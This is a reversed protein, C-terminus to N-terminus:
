ATRGSKWLRYTGREWVEWEELPLERPETGDGGKAERETKKKKKKKRWQCNSMRSITKNKSIIGETHEEAKKRREVWEKGRGAWRSVATDWVVGMSHGGGGEGRKM